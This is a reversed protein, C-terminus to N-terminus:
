GGGGEEGKDRERLASIIGRDDFTTYGSYARRTPRSFGLLTCLLTNVCKCHGLFFGTDHNFLDRTHVHESVKKNKNKNKLVRM